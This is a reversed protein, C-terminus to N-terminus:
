FGYTSGTRIFNALEPGWSTLTGGFYLHYPGTGDASWAWALGGIGNQNTGVQQMTYIVNNYNVSADAAGTPGYEGVIVAGHGDGTPIAMMPKYGCVIATRCPGDGTFMAKDVALDNNGFDGYYHMDWIVNHMDAYYHPYAQAFDLSQGGRVELLIPNNNGAARITDYVQRQQSAIGNWDGSNPENLTGFWVYPNDRFRSAISAYWNLENAQQGNDPINPYCGNCASHDELEIVVGRATAADVIPALSDATDVQGSFCWSTGLAGSCAPFRIMTIGPMSDLVKSIQSGLDDTLNLGRPVFDNGNIDLIRGNVVNFHGNHGPQPNPAPNPAPAPVPNPTPASNSLPSTATPGVWSSGNFAYWNKTNGDQGWITQTAAIYTLASTGNGGPVAAGNEIIDGSGSLQWANGNADMILGGSSPTLVSQTPAAVLPSTATPGIWSAGDFRYWNGTGRDQGWITQTSAVYALTATNGGGPVPSGNKIIDGSSSLQWQNGSSDTIAGGSSPDISSDLGTVSDLASAGTGKIGQSSLLKPSIKATSNFSCGTLLLSSIVTGLFLNDAKLNMRMNPLGESQVTQSTM